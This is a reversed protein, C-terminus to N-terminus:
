SPALEEAWARPTTGTLARNTGQVELKIGDLPLPVPIRANSGRTVLVIRHSGEETPDVSFAHIDALEYEFRQHPWPAFRVSCHSRDMRVTAGGVLARVAFYAFVTAAAAGAVPFFWPARSFLGVALSLNWLSALGIGLARSRRPRVVLTRGDDSREIRIASPRETV